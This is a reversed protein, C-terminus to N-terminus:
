VGASGNRERQEGAVWGGVWLGTGQSLVRRVRVLVKPGRITEEMQAGGWLLGNESTSEPSGVEYM